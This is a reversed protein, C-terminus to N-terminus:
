SDFKSLFEVREIAPPHSFYFKSYIPHPTLTSSNDKYMRILASILDKASSYKAAFTDAEFENKRSFWSGIPTLLFTYVPSIITFLLLIVHSSTQEISFAELFEPRQYLIGLIYFGILMFCISFLMQKKIHKHCFHGLEHALVAIVENPNLTNILTDFFVIRKNKGFGTFYANGHSSRLSANMVFYEKFEVNCKQSLENIAQELEPKDLKSFKNFLPAIFKPYAWIIVFQFLVLFLWSYFWWYKTFTEIFFLLTYILPIGIILSVLIQKFFDSIYIKATMKNFGFKEEIVFNNYLDFPISIFAGIFSFSLLFAVGQWITSINLSLTINNLWNIGGLYIWIILVLFNFLMQILGFKSKTLSYNQAKNHENLTIRESFQQPVRNINKKIYSMNLILLSIKIMLNLILLISFSYIIIQDIPM